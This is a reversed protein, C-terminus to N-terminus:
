MPSSEDLKSQTESQISITRRHHPYAFRLRQTDTTKNIIM